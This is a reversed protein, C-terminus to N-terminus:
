KDTNIGKARLAMLVARELIKHHLIPNLECETNVNIGEITLENPLTELIIPKPKRIYRITYDSFPYKSIIEVMRINSFDGLDLRLAKYKTAGKFPNKKIKQYEDHKTPYVSIVETNYCKLSEDALSLQEYIIFMLNDPLMFIKSRSDLGGQRVADTVDYRKTAVLSDLSRRMEETSEFSDGFPNKGNYLSIVIEEQAKTLYLSKEFEDFEISDLMEQKDFDKFRRYSNVLTDFGESFEKNNM